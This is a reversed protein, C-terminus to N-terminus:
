EQTAIGHPGDHRAPLLSLSRKAAPSEKKARPKRPRAVKFGSWDHGPFAAVLLRETAPWVRRNWLDLRDVTGDYQSAPVIRKAEADVVVWEVKIGAHVEDGAEQMQQAIRAQIPLASRTGDKKLKTAYQGVERNLGKSQKVEDLSLAEELAHRRHRRVVEEYDEVRDSPVPVKAVKAVKLGGVLLDIVEAQLRRALLAADGRKYEMGKIEPKSDATAPKGKYFQYAGVYKKASTFVLREFSKEYEIAVDCRACGQSATLRTFLEANCWAAFEAFAERSGGTFYVGDTDIYVVKFGRKDAEAVVQKTLWEGGKTVAEYVQKDYWRGGELGTVGPFSNVVVKYATSTAGAAHWEPTGPPLTGQLKRSEKRLGGVRLVASAFMGLPERAFCTGTIPSRCMGEPIPGNVPGDRKTDSGVNWSTLISPYMGAFDLVHVGRLIGLGPEPKMVYAGSKKEAELTERAKKTGFHVGRDRALQFMMGDVHSSPFLGYTDPFVNCLECVSFHQDAYKKKAEIKPLLITDQACYRVMEELRDGGAQWAEWTHKADFKDKGEGLVAQAINNLALSQKEEGSEASHMNMREFLKMQDLWLWQRLVAPNWGALAVRAKIVEFDFEEGNWALVQDYDKLVTFMGRLLEREDADRDEELVGAEVVRPAAGGAGDDAVCWVLIRMEQKRHFPLRSDTELDLYCRRPRQVKLDARDAFLRRVPSVDGEHVKIGLRDYRGVIEKRVVWSRCGVRLWGPEKDDYWCGDEARLQRLVSATLDETRLFFSYEARARVKEVVGDDRRTLLVVHGGDVFANVVPRPNV